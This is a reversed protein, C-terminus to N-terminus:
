RTSLSGIRAERTPLSMGREKEPQVDVRHIILGSKVEWIESQSQVSSPYESPWVLAWLKLDSEEGVLHSYIGLRFLPRTWPLDETV